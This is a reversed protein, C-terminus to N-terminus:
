GFMAGLSTMIQVGIVVLYVAIFCIMLAMSLRRVRAPVKLVEQRLQQRQYDGLKIALAAWYAETQDGRLMSIFGRTVDSLMASGVRAEMRTLAAEYNSSRMDAVTIDLERRLAPGANQRYAELMGLVDRSHMLNKRVFAALAPLEYEIGKRKKEIEEQIGRTEKLYLAAALVLILPAAIPLIFLSPIALLGCLGAKVLAKARYLEPTMHVGATQLDAALQMRKYENIRLHGSLWDALGELWLELMGTKKKQRKRLSHVAKVARRSPLRLVDAFLLFSGAALFAGSSLLLIM